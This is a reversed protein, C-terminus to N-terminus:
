HPRPQPAPPQAASGRWWWSRPWRTGPGHPDGRPPTPNQPRGRAPAADTSVDRGRDCARRQALRCGDRWTEPLRPRPGRSSPQQGGPGPGGGLVPHRQDRGRVTGTGRSTGAGPRATQGGWCPLAWPADTSGLRGGRRGPAGPGTSVGAHGRRGGRPDRERARRGRRPLVEQGWLKRPSDRRTTGDERGAGEPEAQQRRGTAPGGEAAEGGGRRGPSCAAGEAGRCAGM